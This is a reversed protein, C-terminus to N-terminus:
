CPIGMKTLKVQMAKRESESIAAQAFADSIKEIADEANLSAFRADIEKPIIRTYPQNNLIDLEVQAADVVPQLGVGTFAENLRAIANRDGLDITVPSAEKRLAQTGLYNRQILEITQWESLTMGRPKNRLFLLEALSYSFGTRSTFKIFPEKAPECSPENDENPKIIKPGQPKDAKNTNYEAPGFTHGTSDWYQDHVFSGPDEKEIEEESEEHDETAVRPTVPEISVSTTGDPSATVTIRSNAHQDSIKVALTLLDQAPNPKKVGLINPPDPRYLDLAYAFVRANNVARVKAAKLERKLQAIQKDKSVKKVPKSKRKSM